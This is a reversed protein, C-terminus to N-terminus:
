RTAHTSELPVIEYIGDPVFPTFDPVVGAFTIFCMCNVLRGYLAACDDASRQTYRWVPTPFSSSGIPVIYM